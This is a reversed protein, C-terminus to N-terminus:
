LGNAQADLRSASVLLGRAAGRLQTIQGNLGAIVRAKAAGKVGAKKTTTTKPNKQARTLAAKKKAVSSMHKVPAGSATLNGAAYGDRLKTLAAAKALILRAAQRDEWAQLRLARIRAVDAPPEPPEPPRQMAARTKVTAQTSGIGRSGFQGGNRHGSPVRPHLQETFALDVGTPESALQRDHAKEWAGHPTTATGVYATVPQGQAASALARSHGDVAFLRASGPRRILVVPKRWGAMIRKGMVQLKAKDAAAAKWDTAGTTRDIQTVPVRTPGTWTLTSVWGLAGPPYDRALQATVKAAIDTAPPAKLSASPDAILATM